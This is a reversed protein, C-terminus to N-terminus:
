KGFLQRKIEKKDKLSLIEIKNKKLEKIKSKEIDISNKYIKMISDPNDDGAIRNISIKECKNCEHIIMLEGQKKEGYKDFGEQKFTLGIPKMLGFCNSKRDGLSVDLHNSFLCFPCHNRHKTGIESDLFIDKHCNKCKIIKNILNM